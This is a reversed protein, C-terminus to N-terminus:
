TLATAIIDRILRAVQRADENTISPGSPLVVVTQALRESVSLSPDAPTDPSGFPPVHNLGPAFYRRALVGKSRLASVLEDRPVRTKEEDVELVVYQQNSIVDQPFAYLKLGSIDSLSERYVDYRERNQAIFQDVGKLNVLGMAASMEPMKGNIGLCEVKDFGSFGFNRVLKLKAALDDDNTTICGGEFTNFVKTAHFSFVEADGFNGVATEGLRCDFAHAADFILKLDHRRAVEQLGPAQSPAGWLHVGLIAVTRPTIRREVDAPDLCHTDGLVDAFVPTLGLWRVAQATAVFTFAPLIVEGQADGLLAKLVIQLAATANCIAIAHRVSLREALAAELERVYAGDNTLWRSRLILRAHRLFEEEDHINPRGVHLESSFLSGGQM